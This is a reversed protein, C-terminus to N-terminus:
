HKSSFKGMQQTAAFNQWIIFRAEHVPTCEPKLIEQAKCIPL